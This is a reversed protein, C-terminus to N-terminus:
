VAKEAREKLALNMLIFGQRTKEAMFRWILPIALGSFNQRHVLRVAGGEPFIEFIHEGDALWPFLTHGRWAFVKPPDCMTVVPKFSHVRKSGPLRPHCEIREGLRAIGKSRVVFPNWERYKELDTLISWVLEPDASIDIETRIERIKM